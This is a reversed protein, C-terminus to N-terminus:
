TVDSCKKLLETHDCDYIFDMNYSVYDIRDVDGDTEAVAKEVMILDGEMLDRAAFVGRGKDKTM